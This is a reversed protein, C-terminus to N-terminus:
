VVGADDWRFLSMALVWFGALVAVSQMQAEVASAALVVALTAFMVIGSRSFSRKWLWRLLLFVFTASSLVLGVVGNEVLKQLLDSDPSAWSSVGLDSGQFFSFANPFSATGYGFLLHESDLMKLADETLAKKSVFGESNAGATENWLVSTDACIKAAGSVAGWWGLAAVAAYCVFPVRMKALRKSHDTLYRLMKHKRANFKMPVVEFALISFAAAALLSVATQHVTKGERFVFFALVAAACFCMFKQSYLFPFLRFKHVSYLSMALAAGCWIVCFSPWYPSFGTRSFNESLEGEYNWVLVAFAGVLTIAAASVAGWTLIKRIIFRSDTIMFISLGSWFAALSVFEASFPALAGYCSSSPVNGGSRLLEFYELDGSTIVSLSPNFAAFAAIAISALFPLSYLLMDRVRGLPAFTWSYFYNVMNVPAIIGSAAFIGVVLDYNEGLFLAPFFAMFLVNVILMRENNNRATKIVVDEDLM